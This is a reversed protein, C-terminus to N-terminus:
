TAEESSQERKGCNPRILLHLSDSLQTTSQGTLQMRESQDGHASHECVQPLWPLCILSSVESFGVPVGGLASWM